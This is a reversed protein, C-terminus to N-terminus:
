QESGVVINKSKWVCKVIEGMLISPRGEAMGPVHLKFLTGRREFAVNEM